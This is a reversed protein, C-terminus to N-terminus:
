DINYTYEVGLIYLTEPDVVNWEYQNLFYIGFIQHKGVDFNVGGFFRTRDFGNHYPIRPNQIQWRLEAGAYPEIDKTVKYGIKYQNRFYIEPVNGYVAEYGAGRWESQIRGRASFNLDGKKVKGVLDFYIRHRIGWFGDDKHKDIFRYVLSTKLYDTMKWTIGINTYILNLDSLNHRLRLEQDVGLVFKKGLDKNVSVTMWSGFDQTQGNVQRVAIILLLIAFIRKM